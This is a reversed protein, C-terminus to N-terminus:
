LDERKHKIAIRSPENSKQGVNIPRDDHNRDDEAGSEQFKEEILKLIQPRLTKLYPQISAFGVDTAITCILKVAANRVDNNKDDAYKIAYKIM